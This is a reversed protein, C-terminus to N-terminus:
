AEAHGASCGREAPTRRGRASACSRHTSDIMMGELDAERALAALIDNPVGMPPRDQCDAGRPRRTSTAAM